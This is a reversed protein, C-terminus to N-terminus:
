SARRMRPSRAYAGEAHRSLRPVEALLRIHQRSSRKLADPVTARGDALAATLQLAM